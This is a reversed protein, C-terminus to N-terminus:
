MVFGAPTKVCECYLGLTKLLLEPDTGSSFNLSALEYNPMAQTSSVACGGARVFFRSEGDGSSKGNVGLWYLLLEALM